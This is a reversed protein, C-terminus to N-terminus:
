SICALAQQGAISFLFEDEALIEVCFVIASEAFQSNIRRQQRALSPMGSLMSIM